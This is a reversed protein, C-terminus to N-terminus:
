ALKQKKARKYIKVLKEAEKQTTGYEKSLMLSFKICMKELPHNPDGMDMSIEIAIADYDLDKDKETDISYEIVAKKMKAVNTAEKPTMGYEKSFMLSFEIFIEYSPHNPDGTDIAIAIADYDLDLDKVKETDISYEIVAKKMKAVHRQNNTVCFVKDKVATSRDAPPTRGSKLLLLAESALQRLQHTEQQSQVCYIINLEVM